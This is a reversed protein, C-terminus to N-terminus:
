PLTKFDTFCLVHLITHFADALNYSDHGKGFRESYIFFFSSTNVLLLNVFLKKPRMVLPVPGSATWPSCNSRAPEGLVKVRCM